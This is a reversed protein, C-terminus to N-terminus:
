RLDFLKAISTRSHAIHRRRASLKPDIILSPRNHKVESILEAM